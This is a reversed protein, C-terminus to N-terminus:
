GVVSRVTIPQGFLWRSPLLIIIPTLAMLTSAIGAATHQVAMLSFGVGVFPGSIVAVLMAALGRHDSLSRRMGGGEGRLLLWASFCVLGAVCRILNAGFPLYNEMQPLEAVPVGATYYDLGIKSLVLGLGQGLAAGLGFLVGKRPLSLHHALISSFRKAEPRDDGSDFVSIAIGALTVVIAIISSIGLTQHLLLYAFIASFAPALTMFLQGMRSGITLYSNFLCWDGFFYGVVGSALLWLWAKLGAHVPLGYGTAVWLLIISFLLALAMRWVNMVFVGLHRSGVESSLAAVTWSCAVGLSIIEGLYQM